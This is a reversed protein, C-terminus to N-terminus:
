ENWIFDFLLLGATIIVVSFAFLSQLETTPSTLLNQTAAKKTVSIGTVLVPLLIPFALVTFLAGRANSKAIIAAVITGGGALGFTGLLIATVFFSIHFIGFNMIAVYLPVVLLEVMLLLMINFILKGLFIESPKAVLKLTDATHAEEERVFIHSLGSMSAFFLIIWLLASLIDSSASFTGIAFSVAFLTVLAFLFIANLAYRTKFEQLLDKKFILYANTLNQGLGQKKPPLIQKMQM